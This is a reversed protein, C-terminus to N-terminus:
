SELLHCPHAKCRYTLNSIHLLYRINGIIYIIYMYFFTLVTITCFQVSLYLFLAVWFWLATTLQSAISYVSLLGCVAIRLNCVFSSFASMITCSFDLWRDHENLGRVGFALRVTTHAIFLLHFSIFLVM